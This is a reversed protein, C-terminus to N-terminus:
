FALEAFTMMINNDKIVVDESTVLEGQILEKRSCGCVLLFGYGFCFEEHYLSSEQVATTTSLADLLKAKKRRRKKSKGLAGAKSARSAAQLRPEEKGRLLWRCHVNSCDRSLVYM